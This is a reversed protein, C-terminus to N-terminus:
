KIKIFNMLGILAVFLLSAVPWVIWTIGWAMTWLSWGLYVAVVLPWYFTGLGLIRKNEDVRSLAYQGEHLLKKYAENVASSPIMLYFGLSVLLLLLILTFLIIMTSLHNISSLILPLPSVMLLTMGIATNRLYSTSYVDLKEKLISEAGYELEFHISEIVESIKYRQNLSIITVIGLVVLIFMSVLGISMTLADSFQIVDGKNLANVFLLPIVSTSFLFLAKVTAKSKEFSRSIYTNAEELTVLTLREEKDEILIGVEEIEDKLLYDTSVGFIEGLKIIRNLDPISLAGEWKSVSQRSVNLKEALEEQSWGFQKRLKIIKDALKM